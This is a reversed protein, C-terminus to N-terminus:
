QPETFTKPDVKDLLKFATVDEDIFKEGDRKSSIKTAKQIGDFEKYNSYITEQMAESGDFGVVKAVLKVPLGSEKDFYITFDKGDSGTAKIGVAPKDAVKDVGASALKFEAGKLPVLTIPIMQLYANRKENAVGDKDLEMGMDGFKRWGKDGALVMVGKMKQGNFDGEFESRLHGLEQVTVELTFDNDNGGLNIKGKGKWTAAKIASLKEEGGLAKIGKDLVAKPDDEARAQGVLGLVFFSVIAAGIFRRM